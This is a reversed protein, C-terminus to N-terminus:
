ESDREKTEKNVVQIQALVDTISTEKVLKFPHLFINSDIQRIHNKLYVLL